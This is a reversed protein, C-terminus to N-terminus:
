NSKGIWMMKFANDTLANYREILNGKFKNFCRDVPDIYQRIIVTELVNGPLVIQVKFVYDAM